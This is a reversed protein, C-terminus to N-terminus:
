TRGENQQVTGESGGYCSWTWVRVEMQEVGPLLSPGPMRNTNLTFCPDPAPTPELRLSRKKLFEPNRNLNPNRAKSLLFSRMRNLAGQARYKLAQLSSYWERWSNWGTTLRYNLMMRLAKLATQQTKSLWCTADIWKRWATGLKYNKMCAAARKLTDYPVNSGAYVSQWKRWARALHVHLMHKIAYTAKQRLESEKQYCDRWTEWAKSLNRQLWRNAAAKFHKNRGAIEAALM